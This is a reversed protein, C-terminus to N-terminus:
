LTGFYVYVETREANVLLHYFRLGDDRSFMSANKWLAPDPADPLAKICNFRNLTEFNEDRQLRMNSILKEIEDPFSRFYYSDSYDAFGGGSFHHCLAQAHEPLSTKMSREFRNRHTPPDLILGGLQTVCLLFCPVMIWYSRFRLWGAWRYIGVIAISWPLLLVGWVSSLIVGHILGSVLGEVHDTWRVAADIVIAGATFFLSYFHAKWWHLPKKEIM